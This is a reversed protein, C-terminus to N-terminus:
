LKHLYAGFGNLCFELNVVHLDFYCMDANEVHLDDNQPTGQCGLNQALDASDDHNLHAILQGDSACDRLRYAV